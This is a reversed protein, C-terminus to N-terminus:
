AKLPKGKCHIVGKVRRVYNPCVYCELFPIERKFVPCDVAEKKMRSILKPSLGILRKKVEEPVRFPKEVEKIAVEFEYSM